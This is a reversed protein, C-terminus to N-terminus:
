GHRPTAPCGAPGGAALIKRFGPLGRPARAPLLSRPCVPSTLGAEGRSLTPWPAEVIPATGEKSPDNLQSSHDPVACSGNSGGSARLSVRGVPALSRDPPLTRRERSGDLGRNGPWSVHLGPWWSRTLPILGFAWSASLEISVPMARLAQSEGRGVASFSHALRLLNLTAGRKLNRWDASSSPPACAGKMGLFPPCGSADGLRLASVPERALSDAGAAAFM